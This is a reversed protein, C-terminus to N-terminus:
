TRARHLVCRWGEDVRVLEFRGKEFTRIEDPQEFRKLMVELMAEGKRETGNSLFRVANTVDLNSAV